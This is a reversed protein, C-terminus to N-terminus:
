TFFPKDKIVALYPKLKNEANSPFCVEVWRNRLRQMRIDVTDHLIELYVMMDDPPLSPIAKHLLCVNEQELWDLICLCDWLADWNYGFYPFRLQKNYAEFLEEKSTLVGFEAVFVTASSERIVNKYIFNSLNM